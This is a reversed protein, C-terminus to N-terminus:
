VKPMLLDPHKEQLERLIRRLTEIKESMENNQRTVESSNVILVTNQERLDECKSIMFERNIWVYIMYVMIFALIYPHNILFAMAYDLWTVDM